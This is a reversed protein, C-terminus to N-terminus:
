KKLALLAKAAPKNNPNLELYKLLFGKAEIENGLAIHSLGLTLLAETNDGKLRLAQLSFDKANEFDEQKLKLSAMAIKFKVQNPWINLAQKILLEAKKHKGMKQYILYNLLISQERWEGDFKELKKAFFLAKELNGNKYNKWGNQYTKAFIYAQRYNNRELPHGKFSKELNKLAPSFENLYFLIKGLFYYGEYDKPNLKLYQIFNEKALILNDTAYHFIGRYKYSREDTQVYKEIRKNADKIWKVTKSSNPDILERSTQIPTLNNAVLFNYTLIGLLRHGAPSLHNNNYFYLPIGIQNSQFKKFINTPNSYFYNKLKSNLRRTKRPEIISSVEQWTPIDVVVFKSNLGSLFQSIKVQIASHLIINAEAERISTNNIRAFYIISHDKPTVSFNDSNLSIITDKTVNFKQSELFYGLQISKPIQYLSTNWLNNIKSRIKFLVQSHESIQFYYPFKRVWEWIISIKSKSQLKIKLDELNIEHKDKTRIRHEIENSLILKNYKVRFDNEGQSVIVLDPKYKHGENQLFTLFQITSWAVGSFNIIEIHKGTSRENLINELNRSFLETNEVGLGMFISNGLMLIRFTNEPKKYQFEKDSLFHKSNTQLRFPPYLYGHSWDLLVNLNSRLVNPLNYYSQRLDPIVREPFFSQLFFELSLFIIVFSLFISILPKIILKKM